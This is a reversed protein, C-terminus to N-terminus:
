EFEIIEENKIANIVAEAKRKSAKTKLSSVLGLLQITILPMLAVTAVLGYANTLISSSGHIIETAGIGLPLLFTATMPGSAVGGADFAITTYVKPVFFSLGLAIIYGIGIVYLISFSYIIRLMSIALAFAMSLALAIKLTSKKITGSSVDEVQKVLVNVAPEALIILLGVFAAVFILPLKSNLQALSSGIFYGTGMYAASVGTLFLSLGVYTYLFGVTIRTIQIRPIKFSIANFIYFCVAIPLLAILVEKLSHYIVNAYNKTLELLSNSTTPEISPNVEPKFIICLLLTMMIPGVSCIATMGFSNESKNKGGVTGAISAGFALIFPVTLAGTTVGGSDFCLALYKSDIFLALIFLIGYMILITLTFDWKFFTKLLSISLFAGVGLAITIILIWKISGLQEGLVSLDPEAVTILFGLLVGMVLMIWLKKKGTIYSGFNDGVPDLSIKIGKNYLTMGVILFLNGIIFGILDYLGLSEELIFNIILILTTIPLVSVIAEYIVSNKFKM